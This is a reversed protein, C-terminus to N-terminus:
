RSAKTDLGGIATEPSDGSLCHLARFRDSLVVEVPVGDMSSPIAAANGPRADDVFIKFVVSDADKAARGIGMAFVGPYALIGDEVRRQVRAALREARDERTAKLRGSSAVASDCGVLEAPGKPKMKKVDKMVRNMPNAVTFASSGAFLLGMARPCQKVDEYIVSGSDGGASFDKNNTSAVLFTKVFQVQRITSDDGCALQFSVFGSINTAIVEGRTFGTTRGSKKVALGVKAGVVENGPIGLGLIAGDASVKDVSTEAIAADVKNKGNLKIKKFGSLTAIQDDSPAACNNDNLGPQNISEGIAGANLRALVHNNSLIFHRNDKKLLAGMTGGCCFVSPPFATFDEVTGGSVGLKMPRKQRKKHQKPGLAQTADLAVLAAEDPLAPQSQSHVTGTPLLALALAGIAIQLARHPSRAAFNDRSM